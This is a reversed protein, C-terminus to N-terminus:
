LNEFAVNNRTKFLVHRVLGGGLLEIRSRQKMAKGHHEIAFTVAGAEHRPHLGPADCAQGIVFMGALMPRLVFKVGSLDAQGRSFAGRDLEGFPASPESVQPHALEALEAFATM